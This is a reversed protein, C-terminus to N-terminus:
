SSKHENKSSKIVFNAFKSDILYANFYNMDNINNLRFNKSSKISQSEENRILLSKTDSNVVHAYISFDASSLQFFHNRDFLTNNHIVLLSEFEFSVITSKFTHILMTRVKFRLKIAILITVECSDIYTSNTFTSINILKFNIFNNEIMLNIKFIKVFHAEKNLVILVIKEIADTKKVYMKVIAYKDIQHKNANLERPTISITM